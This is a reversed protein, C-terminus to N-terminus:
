APGVERLSLSRHNVLYRELFVGAFPPPRSVSSWRARTLFAASSLSVLETVALSSASVRHGGTPSMPVAHSVSGGSYEHLQGLPM